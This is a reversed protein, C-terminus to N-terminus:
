KKCVVKHGNVFRNRCLTTSKTYDNQTQSSPYTQCSPCNSRNNGKSATITNYRLRFLRDSSSVAGQTSYQSNNPKYVVKKCNGSVYNSSESCNALLDGNSSTFNFSRQHFTRCRAQLYEDNSTYYKKLPVGSSDVGVNANINTNASLPICKSSGGIVKPCTRVDGFVSTTNVKPVSPDCPCATKRYYKAPPPSSFNSVYQETSDIPRTSKYQFVLTPKLPM